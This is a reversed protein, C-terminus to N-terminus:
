TPLDGTQRLAEGLVMALALAVNISRLGPRMPVRLRADAAAAVDGPVGSTERGVMLRDSSAFAFDPYRIDSKTTLLVLRGEPASDLYARWSRHRALEVQDLYDMGARKLKRDDFPFGCPEILDVAVGQCAALRLMTGVNQPIDPEYLIVRMTTDRYGL